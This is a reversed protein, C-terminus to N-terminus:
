RTSAVGVVDTALEDVLGLQLATGPDYLRAELVVREFGHPPVRYRALAFIKPPFELGLAVENLGIRVRPDDALVRYDAALEVICGGAIAHGNVAAVMPGSYTFLAEAMAELTGLFHEAAPRDLAAVEKLNLGASFADGAGTVLIPEGAATRLREIVSEMLALSLANKGPADLTLTIM